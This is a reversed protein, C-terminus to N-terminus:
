QAVEQMLQILHHIKFGKKECIDKIQSNVFDAFASLNTDYDFHNSPEYKYFHRKRYERIKGDTFCMFSFQQFNCKSLDWNCAVGDEYTKFGKENSIM